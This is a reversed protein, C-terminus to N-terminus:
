RRGKWRYIGKIFLWLKYPRSKNKARDIVDSWETKKLYYSRGLEDYLIVPCGNSFWEEKLDSFQIDDREMDELFSIARKVKM